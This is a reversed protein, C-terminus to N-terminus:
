RQSQLESTHEESRSQTDDYVMNQSVLYNYVDESLIRRHGFETKHSPILGTDCYRIITPVTVGLLAAVEGTKYTSKKLIM